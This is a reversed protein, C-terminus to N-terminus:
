LVVPSKFFSLLLRPNKNLFKVFTSAEIAYILTDEDKAKLTFSHSRQTSQPESTPGKSTLTYNNYEFILMGPLLLAEGSADNGTEEIYLSGSAVLIATEIPKGRQYETTQGLGEMMPRLVEGQVCYFPRMISQLEQKQELRLKGLMASAEVASWGYNKNRADVIAAMKNYMIEDGILLNKIAYYDLELVEMDTEAVLTERALEGGFESPKDQPLQESGYTEIDVEYEYDPQVAGDENEEYVETESVFILEGFYDGESLIRSCNSIDTVAFGKGSVVILFKNTGVFDGDENYGQIIEEEKYKRLNAMYVLELAKSVSFHEFIEMSSIIQLWKVMSGDSDSAPILEISNEVGPQAIRLGHKKAETAEKGAVHILHIHDRQNKTLEMFSQIPTHIPAVGAEHLVVDCDWPFNILADARGPSLVKSKELERLKKAEYFTDASYVMSKGKFEIKFGICPISHLSYFFTFVAGKWYNPEGLYVPRFRFLENLFDTSLGSIASYKRLFSEYITASTFLDVKHDLILKQFTGADHDAHCHTLILGTITRPRIGYQQLVYSSHPPPDVMIGHGNVWVVFGTTTGHPDFGHSNGLITIGFQPM